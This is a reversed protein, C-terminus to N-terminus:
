APLFNRGWHQHRWVLTERVHFAPDEFFGSHHLTQDMYQYSSPSEEAKRQSKRSGMVFCCMPSACKIVQHTERLHKSAGELTQHLPVRDAPPQQELFNQKTNHTTSRDVRREM